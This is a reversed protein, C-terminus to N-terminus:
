ISLVAVSSCEFGFLDKSKYTGKVSLANKNQKNDSNNNSSAELNM